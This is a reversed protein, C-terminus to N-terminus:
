ATDDNGNEVELSDLLVKCYNIIEVLDEEDLLNIEEKIQEIDMTQRRHALQNGIRDLVTIACTKHPEQCEGSM